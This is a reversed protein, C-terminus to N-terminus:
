KKRKENSADQLVLDFGDVPWSQSMPGVKPPRATILVATQVPQWFTTVWVHQECWAERTSMAKVKNPPLGMSCFM